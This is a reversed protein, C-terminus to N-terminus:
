LFFRSSKFNIGTAKFDPTQYPESFDMQDPRQVTIGEHRLVNCFEEIEEQARAMHQKPFPKGSFSRFFDWHATSTCAQM